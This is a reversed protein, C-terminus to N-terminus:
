RRRRKKKVKFGRSAPASVNGAPDRAIVFFTHAGKALKATTFPSSCPTTAKGDVSCEFAAAPDSSSFGFTPTADKTKGSPGSTIRVDPATADVAPPAEPPVPDPPVPDPAAVFITATVVASAAGDAIARFTFSDIGAFGANPTYAVTRAAQDIGGLSGNAPTGVIEITVAEGNPDSCDLGVTQVAGPSGSSGRGVCSPPEETALTQVTQSGDDALYLRNGDPSVVLGRPNGFLPAAQCGALITKKACGAQALSGDGARRLTLVVDTGASSLYVFRGDPSVGVGQAGTLSGVPLDPCDDGGLCDRPSLAGTAPDRDFHAIAADEGSVTYLSSGDPSLALREIDALGEATAACTEPSEAADVDDICSLPALNGNPARAFGVVASDGSDNSTAYVSRGDPSVAIDDSGDLGPATTACADPGVDNDEYCGAAGTAILTGTIPARDFHVVANDASTVVYLDNGDPSIALAHPNDMGDTSAGCTDPGDGADNDDICSVASLSGDAARNFHVIADDNMSVAYVQRGDPSVVVDEASNLGDTSTACADPGDPPDNDEICGAFALSGGGTQNLTVVADSAGSAGYVTRGDPSLAIDDITDIADGSRPCAAQDTPPDNDVICTLPAVVGPALAGASAPAVATVSLAV